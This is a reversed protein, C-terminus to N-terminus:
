IDPAFRLLIEPVGVFVGEETNRLTMTVEICYVDSNTAYDGGTKEAAM